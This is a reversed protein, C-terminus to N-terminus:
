GARHKRRYRLRCAESCFERNGHADEIVTDCEPCVVTLDFGLDLVYYATRPKLGMAEAAERKSGFVVIAAEILDAIPRGDSTLPEVRPKLGILRFRKAYSAGPDGPVHRYDHVSELIGRRELETRWQYDPGGDHTKAIERWRWKPIYIWDYLEMRPRMYAVLDFARRQSRLDGRFNAVIWLVDEAGVYSELLQVDDPYHRPRQKLRQVADWYNDYIERVQRVIQSDIVQWNGTALAEPLSRSYVYEVLIRGYTRIWTKVFIVANEPIINRRYLYQIVVTQADYRTFVEYKRMEERDFLGNIMNEALRRKYWTTLDLKAKGAEEGEEATERGNQRRLPTPPPPLYPSRFLEFPELDLLERLADEWTEGWMPIGSRIPRQGRGLPWRFIRKADPYLEIQLGTQKRINAVAPGLIDHILKLTAHKGKYMVLIFVHFSRDKDWSPSTCPLCNVGEALGLHRELVQMAADYGNRPADIDIAVAVPYWRGTSGHWVRNALHSWVDPPEPRRQAVHWGRWGPRQTGVPPQPAVFARWYAAFPQRVDGLLNLVAPGDEVPRLPQQITPATYISGGGEPNTIPAPPPRTTTAGPAV